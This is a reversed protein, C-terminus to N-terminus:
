SARRACWSSMTIAMPSGRRHPEGRRSQRPHGRAAGVARRVLPRSVDPARRAGPYRLLRGRLHGCRAGDRPTCPGLDRRCDGRTAGTRSSTDGLDIARLDPVGVLELGRKRSPAKRLFGQEILQEVRYFAAARTIRFREAIEPYNPAFGMTEIHGRM